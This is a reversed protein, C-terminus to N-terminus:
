DCELLDALRKTLIFAVYTTHEMSIAPKVIITPVTALSVIDDVPTVEASAAQYYYLSAVSALRAFAQSAEWSCSVLLCGPLFPSPLYGFTLGQGDQQM